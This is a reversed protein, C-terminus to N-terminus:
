HHPMAGTFRRDHRYQTRHCQICSQVKGSEMVRGDPGYRGWFWDGEEPNYGKVKYMITVSKLTTKDKDYDEKVLMARNPMPEAEAETAAQIAIKNGYLRLYAGHPNKAPTLGRRMSPYLGEKPPYLSWNPYPDTKTIYTWLADAEPAPLREAAMSQDGQHQTPACACLMVASMTWVALKWIKQNDMM